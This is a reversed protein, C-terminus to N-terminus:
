SRDLEVQILEAIRAAQEALRSYMWQGAYNSGLVDGLVDELESAESIARVVEDRAPVLDEPLPEGDIRYKTIALQLGPSLVSNSRTRYPRVYELWELHYEAQWDILRYFEAIEARLHESPILGLKGTALLEGWAERPVEPNQLWSTLLLALVLDEASASDPVRGSLTEAVLQGEAQRIRALEAAEVLVSDAARFDASLRTLYAAGEAREDRAQVWRDAALAILVGAIIVV